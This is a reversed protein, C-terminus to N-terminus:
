GHKQDAMFPYAKAITRHNEILYAIAYRLLQTRSTGYASKLKALGVLQQETVNVLIPKMYRNYVVRRIPSVKGPCLILGTKM